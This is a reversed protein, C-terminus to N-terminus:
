KKVSRTFKMKKSHNIDISKIMEKFDEKTIRATSTTGTAGIPNNDDDGHNSHNYLCGKRILDEIEREDYTEGLDQLMTNLTHADIGGGGGGTGDIDSERNNFVKYLEDIASDDIRLTKRALVSIFEPFDILGNDVTDAEEVMAALEKDVVNIGVSEM